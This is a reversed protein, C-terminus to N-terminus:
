RNQEDEPFDSMEIAAFPVVRWSDVYMKPGTFNESKFEVGDFTFDTNVFGMGFNCYSSANRDDIITQLTPVPEEGVAIIDAYKGMESFPITVTTWGDTSFPEGSQAYPIFFLTLSQKNNDDSTYGAFNYNNILLIEIQGTTDWPDPCYIDFQFALETVPTAPDIYATMRSWDDNANGNGATWCETVRSMSSKVGGDLIRDPVVQWVKGRQGLPDDVLDETMIMSASFGWGGQEYRGDFDLIMCETYNFYAPSVATGNASVATISGSQSVGQPMVFMFWEGDEDDSVIGETVTIDGPLTVSSTEQLGNGFVTVTEGPVPLTNSIGKIGPMAARITFHYALEANDKILRIVDRESEDATTIPTKANLTILMSNDTVYNRNFYTDYGNVTVKKLGMFGSGELRLMQGLRGFDVERDPVSSKYDELYVKNVVIPTSQYESDFYEDKESCSVMGMAIAAMTAFSLINNIYKM